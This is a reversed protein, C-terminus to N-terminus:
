IAYTYEGNEKTGYFDAFNLDFLNKKIHSVDIKNKILYTLVGCYSLDGVLLAGYIVGDKHIIKKYVNKTELTNIDYSDDPANAIGISAAQLGLFNMSNLFAFNDKCSIEKGAMNSAATKGQRVAVPWIPSLATVDGAAYIDEINTRCFEDILIGRDCNINSNKLFDINPRVGAAVVITSCPILENDNIILGTAEGKENLVVEKASSSLHLTVNNDKLLKEYKVAAKKDLQLPLIRDAMEVLHINVKKEILGVAADIGVLGAGIIVVNDQPKCSEKISIADEINRLPHVNTAERLNKIPPISASAGSAILLKDYSITQGDSLVLTKTATNLDKVDLGKLWNVNNKEFFDKEVFSLRDLNREGSILHHLMCRSYVNVDKSIVTIDSTLDLNRLTKAANIGSASAGIIVYKM